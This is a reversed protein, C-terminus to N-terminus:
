SNAVILAAFILTERVGLTDGWHANIKAKLRDVAANADADLRLYIRISGEAPLAVALSPLKQELDDEAIELGRLVIDKFKEFKQTKLSAACIARVIVEFAQENVSIEHVVQRAKGTM